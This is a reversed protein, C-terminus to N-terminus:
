FEVRLGFQIWRSSSERRTPVTQQTVVGFARPNTLDLTPNSFIVHNFVNFFDLSFRANVKESLRTTKGLSLDLNWTSFGRLPNARGSRGDKSLLIRRFNGFAGEPDAFLNIGSGGTALNGNTGVNNSGPIGQHVGTRLRGPDTLPVAGSLSVLSSGGGLASVGQSVVIPLGSAARFIGNVFWGGLVKDVGDGHLRHGFGVPIEYLFYGNFVHTRDFDSPGYDFDPFFANQLSNTSNQLASSQDLSKSFTYNLDIALNHSPRKSMTMMLAHYNSRGLSTRVFATQTQLNSFPKLGGNLRALDISQFVNSVNGNIFNAENGTIVRATGGPMNNQFWPQAPVNTATAGARLLQAVADFAQAFTQGSLADLQFFPASNFNVSAPLKRGLRGIWGVEVIFNRPLQRQLTFDFSYNEGVKFNPDIQFSVTEGFPQSPIFPFSVVPQAPLPITGDIGVRFGSGPAGGTLSCGPGGAGGANCAPTKLSLTQSFGAGLAALIVSESTNIRDYLIGVGGRLVTKRDGFLKALARSKFLPNWVAAVRPAFNNWDSKFLEGGSSGALPSIKQFGLQPNYIEGRLAAQRRPEMYNEYTLPESTEINIMRTQRGLKDRPPLQLNYSLGLALTFSPGVQWSDQFYFEYANHTTDATIPTGFPLPNLSGDRVTLISVSDILGTVGAFLADWQAVDSARLCNAQAPTSCTPPRSSAPIIINSGRSVDAVLSALSGLVKDNRIHRTLIHRGNFGFQTSHAGRIWTGDYVLQFLENDNSQTRGRQSDVDIPESVLQDLNGGGINLAVPGAITNTGPIALLNAVASPSIPTSSQRDRTWGLRLSATSTGSFSGTLGFTFNQGRLPSEGTFIPRKGRIDLQQRLGNPGGLTSLRRSFTASANLWWNDNLGHDYRAVVYDNELPADATSRYGITNLGDGSSPDNGPPLVSWLAAVSSSLGLRRPDCRVNNGSGCLSSNALDYAVVNGANDRFRVIGRRLTDTPVIRTVDFPRSFNRGEYNLFFFSRNRRLPGGVRLGYRNDRLEAEAVGSRNNTWSNANLQDNQHFWYVAGHFDNSGRRGVLAVQGGPSRGFSANPNTVAVRFEEVSEVPLPVMTRFGAGGGTSNETIDIGDLTFTSQDTRAGMVSGGRSGNDGDGAEPTTGPQLTLFEVANRELSPLYLLLNSPVVSGITADTQQLETRKGDNVNVTEAVDGVELVMDFSYAKTVEVKLRSITSQRFGAGRIVLKYEGPLVRFFAYQGYANSLHKRTQGTASNRLEVEAGIVVAGHNDLVRGSVAGTSSTQSLAVVHASSFVAIAFLLTVFAHTRSPRRANFTSVRM